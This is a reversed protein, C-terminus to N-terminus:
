VMHLCEKLSVPLFAFGLSMYCLDCLCKVTYVIKNKKRMNRELAM